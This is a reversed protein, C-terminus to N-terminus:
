DEGQILTITKEVVKELKSSYFKVTVTDGVGCSALDNLHGSVDTSTYLKDGDFELLIDGSSIIGTLSGKGSLEVIYLGYPKEGNYINPFETLGYQVMTASSMDRVGICLIGLRPKLIELGKELYDFCAIKVTNSPIAFGMNDIKENALKLSNIGILKGDLTFLGGGSNGPNIAADTQIYNGVYDNTGDNDTDFSIFRGVNSVIGFTASGYYDYGDPHGIAVTFSGKKVTASDALQIENMYYYSDFKVVALDIKADKGLVTAELEVDYDGLYAYVVFDKDKDAEDPSVVHCNTIAYYTYSTIEDGTKNEVRKYIVASGISYRDEYIVKGKGPVEQEVKQKFTIGIVSPEVMEICKQVADELDEITYNTTYEVVEQTIVNTVENTVKDPANYSGNNLAECSFLMFISLCAVIVLIIKKVNM